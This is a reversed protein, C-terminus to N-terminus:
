SRAEPQTSVSDELPLSSWQQIDRKSRIVANLVIMVFVAFFIVLGVSAFREAGTMHNLVDKFM